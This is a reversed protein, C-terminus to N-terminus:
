CPAHRDKDVLRDPGPPAAAPGMEHAVGAVVFQVGECGAQSQAAHGELAVVVVHRGLHPYPREGETRLGHATTVQEPAQLGGPQSQRRPM